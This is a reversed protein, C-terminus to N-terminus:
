RALLQAIHESKERLKELEARIRALHFNGTFDLDNEDLVPVSEVLGIQELQILWEQINEESYSQLSARVVVAHAGSGISGLVNWCEPSVKRAQANWARQGAWTRRYIRDLMAM